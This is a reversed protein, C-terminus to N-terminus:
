SQLWEIFDENNFSMSIWVDNEAGLHIAAVITLRATAM